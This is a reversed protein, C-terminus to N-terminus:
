RPFETTRALRLPDDHVCHGGRYARHINEETLVGAIPGAAVLETDLLVGQTFHKKALELDHM